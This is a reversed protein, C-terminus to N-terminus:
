LPESVLVPAAGKEDALFRQISPRLSGTEDAFHKGLFARSLEITIFRHISGAMRRAQLQRPEASYLAFSGANLEREDAGARLWAAGSFNLCIELSGSHFSPAWDIDSVIQFDHWEISIGREFYSGFLPRWAGSVAEWVDSEDARRPPSIPIVAAM